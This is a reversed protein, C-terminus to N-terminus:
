YVLANYFLKLTLYSQARYQPRFGFLIIRGKGREIEVLAPKGAIYKEGLLWGSALVPAQSYRLVAKGDAAEIVPSQEMWITFEPPLGFGLPHGPELRVNLLSGPCYFDRNSVGRLVNQGKVDLQELAYESAGNFFILRGGQEVFSKLASAGEGGLGGLYEEPMAGPRFGNQIGGASQEAFVIVDYKSNLEGARIAANSLQAYDWGFNELIWRTWGEDMNPVFGHYLGIRPKRLEVAGVPQATGLNFRGNKPDRWVPRGAKWAANVRRWADSDSAAIWGQPLLGGRIGSFDRTRTLDAQFRDDAADVSVGMLLPLTHATVDYPRKPPGGPYERLDPYKQRELLTKAFSSFPQRLRVVFAGADYHKPGAEFPAAARDIEVAGFDLTELLKRAAGPDAQSNPLIFAYPSSRETARRNVGYFNRVLDERRTAATYLLSDWVVIQDDVIDRLRWEGGLWPELYNWSRERPNYGLAQASIQEPQVTIPSFLRASASESLIRVGGHYAQYHRSPTWFDYIANVVVGKRGTATLDSAMTMGLMNAEQALVPDVNPDLPDLWPPIFLRSAFAGQQHVDYVIQPHWQNHIQSVVNRTETQSFIYWDRNDDHGIYKQYLEPPSTGEYATGLTKRYWNAVIDIGDPNISPALILIVNDLIARAKPTDAIAMRYAYEIATFTSAVETSHISCTIFVITKGEAILQRAESEPTARPDALRKQIQRFHELRKLNEPASIFAAIMPRGETSKGFERVVVRDSAAALKQFYSVVPAWETYSRDQGIPFGFHSEPTPPAAWLVPALLLAGLTRSTLSGAM